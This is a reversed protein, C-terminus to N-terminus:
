LFDTQITMPLVSATASAGISQGGSAFLQSRPFSGPTPFYQCCSSFPVVSSSITPHCVSEISMLKLLSQSNTISLSAHHAATWPTAFLQVHSLSQVSSFQIVHWFKRGILPQIITRQIYLGIRSIQEDMLTCTPLMWRRSLTFWAAVPAYISRQFEAKLEKPNWLISQCRYMQVCSHFHQIMHTTQTIETSNEMATLTNFFEM